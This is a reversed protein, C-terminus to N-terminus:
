EQDLFLKLIDKKRGSNNLETTNQQSFNEEYEDPEIIKAKIIQLIDQFEFKKRLFRSWEKALGVKESQEWKPEHNVRLTLM